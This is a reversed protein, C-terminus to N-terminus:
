TGNKALANVADTAPGGATQSWQVQATPGTDLLKAVYVDARRLPNTGQSTATTSGFIAPGEFFGGVYM